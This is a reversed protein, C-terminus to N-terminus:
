WGPSQGDSRSSASRHTSRCVNTPTAALTDALESMRRHKDDVAFRHFADTLDNRVAPPLARARPFLWREERDMDASAVTALRSTVRALAQRDEDTWPRTQFALREFEEFTSRTEAHARLLTGVEARTGPDNALVARFAIDEEKGHHCEDLLGHLLEVFRQLVARGDRRGAVVETTWAQLSEISTRITRHEAELEDIADM